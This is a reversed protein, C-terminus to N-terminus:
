ENAPEQSQLSSRFARLLRVLNNSLNHLLPCIAFLTELFDFPKDLYDTYHTFALRFLQEQDESPLLLRSEEKLSQSSRTASELMDRLRQIQSLFLRQNLGSEAQPIFIFEVKAYFCLLLDELTTVSKGLREYQEAYLRATHNGKLMVSQEQLIKIRAEEPDWASRESAANVVIILHPLFPHNVAATESSKAWKIVQLVNHEM